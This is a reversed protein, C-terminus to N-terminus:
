VYCRFISAQFAVKRKPHSIKLSGVFLTFGGIKLPLSATLKLPVLVIEKVPAFNKCRANACGMMGPVGLFPVGKGYAPGMGNGYRSPNKCPLPILSYYPYPTGNNPTGSFGMM